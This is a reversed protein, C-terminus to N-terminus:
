AAKRQKLYATLAEEVLQPITKDTLAAASKVQRILASKLVVTFSKHEDPM